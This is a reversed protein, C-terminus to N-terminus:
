SAQPLSAGTSNSKTVTPYQSVKCRIFNLPTIKTSIVVKSHAQISYKISFNRQVTVISLMMSSVTNGVMAVWSPLESSLRFGSRACPQPIM